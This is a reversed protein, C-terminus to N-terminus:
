GEPLEGSALLQDFSSAPVLPIGLTEAKTIKSAGPAEGVVVCYTKKSVSGTTKGGAAEVAAEADDRTLGPVAGTVVLTRGSLPGESSRDRGGPEDTRLGLGALRDLVAANAPNEAFRVISEAIVAGIGEVEALADRSAGRLAELEGFARAVARAGAPGLHRIGLGVLLRSLPQSRSGDIAAVLKAASLEGMGELHELQSPELQYLDAVDVVLGAATLREVVKEGLGEIDM